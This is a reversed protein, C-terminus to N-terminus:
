QISPRPPRTQRPRRSRARGRHWWTTPPRGAARRDDGPRRRGRVDQLAGARWARGARRRGRGTVARRPGRSRGSRPPPAGACRGATTAPSRWCRRAAAPGGPSGCTPWPARLSWGCGPWPADPTPGGAPGGCRARMRDRSAASVYQWVISHVVVTALGPAPEALRAELWEGLDAAEVAAGAGPPSTWRPTSAPWASSRTPGCTSRLTLRGDSPPSTSPRGTAARGARGGHGARWTPARRARGGPGVFRVASAPDGFTSAGTDYWFRDWRLNLGASAGWSWSGCRCAAAGPWRSTAAWWAASRGVENTQVGLTIRAEIAPRLEAVTAVFDDALSPGPTGASPYHAALGPRGGRRAGPPPGLRPVAAAAGLQGLRARPPRARRVTAGVDAIGRRGTADLLARVRRASRVASSGSRRSSPVTEDTRSAGSSGAM